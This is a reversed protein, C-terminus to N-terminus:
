YGLVLSQNTSSQLFSGNRTSTKMLEHGGGSVSGPHVIVTNKETNYTIEGQAGTFTSHGSTSGRRLQLQKAM